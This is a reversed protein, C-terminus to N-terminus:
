RRRQWDPNSGSALRRVRKGSASMVFVADDGGATREFAIRRADPSWVPDDAEIAGKFRTLQRQRKGSASMVFVNESGRRDSVFALRRGSPAWEPEDDKGPASTLRRLRTGSTGVVFIDVNSGRKRTFAIVRGTPSWAPADGNRVVRRRGSGNADVVWIAGGDEFAIRRGDPSWAPDSGDTVKRRGTGDANIVGVSEGGTVPDASEEFALQRGSPSWVPSGAGGTGPVLRQGRGSPSMVFISSGREFAILGNAGPFSSRAPDAAALLGGAALAGGLLLAGRLAARTASSRPPTPM